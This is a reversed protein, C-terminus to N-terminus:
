VKERTEPSEQVCTMSNFVSAFLAGLEKVKRCEKEGPGMDLCVNEM